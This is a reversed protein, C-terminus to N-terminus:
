HRAPGWGCHWNRCNADFTCHFIIVSFKAQAAAPAPATAAPEVILLGPSTESAREVRVTGGHDVVMSIANQLKKADDEPLSRLHEKQAESVPLETILLKRWDAKLQLAREPDALASKVWHNFAATNPVASKNTDM